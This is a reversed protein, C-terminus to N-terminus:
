IRSKMKQELKFKIISFIYRTYEPLVRVRFELVLRTSNSNNIDSYKRALVRVQLFSRTNELRTNELLTEVRTDIAKSWKDLVKETWNTLVLQLLAISRQFSQPWLFITHMETYNCQHWCSWTLIIMDVFSTKAILFRQM